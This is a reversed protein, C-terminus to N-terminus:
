QSDKKGRNWTVRTFPARSAPKNSGKIAKQETYSYLPYGMYVHSQTDTQEM